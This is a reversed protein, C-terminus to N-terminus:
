KIRMKCIPFSLGLLNFTLTVCYSALDAHSLANPELSWAWSWIGFGGGLLVDSSVVVFWHPLGVETATVQHLLALSLWSTPVLSAHVLAPLSPCVLCVPAPAWM